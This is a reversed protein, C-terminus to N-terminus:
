SASAGAASALLVPVRSPRASFSLVTKPDSDDAGAVHPTREGAAQGSDQLQSGLDAEPQARSRVTNFSTIITVVEPTGLAPPPSDRVTLTWPAAAPKACSIVTPSCRSEPSSGMESPPVSVPGLGYSRSSEARPDQVDIVTAM